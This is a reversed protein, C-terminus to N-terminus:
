FDKKLMLSIFTDRFKKDASIKSSYFEVKQKLEKSPNYLMKSILTKELHNVLGMNGDYLKASSFYSKIIDKAFIYHTCGLVVAAYEDTLTYIEEYLASKIDKLGFPNNEIIKAVNKLPHVRINENNFKKILNCFKSQLSTAETVLVLIKDQPNQETAPKIAPEIGLIPINHNKRLTAIAASTATNCAVVVAKVGINILKNVAKTTLETIESLSKEGYPNHASDGYYIFNENPLKKVCDALVNLGGVGSDFIGIPLKALKKHHM